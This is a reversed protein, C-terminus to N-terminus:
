KKCCNRAEKLPCDPAEKLECKAKPCTSTGKLPCTENKPTFAFLATGMSILGAIALMKIKNTM